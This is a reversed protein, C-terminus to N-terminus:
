PVVGTFILVKENSESTYNRGMEATFNPQHLNLNNLFEIM